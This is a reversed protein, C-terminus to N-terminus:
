GEVQSDGKEGIRVEDGGGEGILTSTLAGNHIM